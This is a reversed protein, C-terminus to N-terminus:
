AAIETPRVFQIPLGFGFFAAILVILLLSLAFALSAVFSSWFARAFGGRLAEALIKPRAKEIATEAYVALIQSAQSRYANLVQDTQTAAHAKFDLENPRRGHARRFERVWERKAEKYLSYAAAGVLPNAGSNIKEFIPNYYDPDAAEPPTTEVEAKM